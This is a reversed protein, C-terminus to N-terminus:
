RATRSDVNMSWPMAGPRRGAARDYPRIGGPSGDAVSPASGAPVRRALPIRQWGWVDFFGFRRERALDLKFYGASWQRLAPTILQVDLDLATRRVIAEGLPQKTRADVITVRGTRLPAVLAVSTQTGQYGVLILQPNGFLLRLSGTVRISWKTEVDGAVSLARAPLTADAGSEDASLREPVEAFRRLFHARLPLQSTYSGVANRKAALLPSNAPPTGWGGPVSREGPGPHINYELIRRPMEEAGLRALALDVLVGTASHDPHRDCRSPVVLVTPRFARLASVIRDVPTSSGGVLCETVQQDPLHLSQVASPPIGLRGLAIRSEGIRRAGWHRRDAPGSPWRGECALQSWPNNDGDTVFLISAPFEDFAAGALLEGAALTEDDPHPAIVMLRDHATLTTGSTRVSDVGSAPLFPFPSFGREVAPAWIAVVVREGAAAVYSHSGVSLELPGAYPRGDLTGRAPGDASVLSYRQPVAIQFPRPASEAPAPLVAGAVRWGGVAVYNKRMFRRARAPYDGSDWYVVAIRSSVLREPIRDPLLGKEMRALTVAECVYYYPRDRFIAEGRPDLVSDAPTTLRLLERLIVQQPQTRDATLPEAQWLAATELAFALAAVAWAAQGARTPSLAWRRALAETGALLAPVLLATVMPVLPLWDQRTVLPWTTEVALWYIAATLFLVVRRGGSALSPAEDLVKAAGRVLLVFAPLFLLPFWPHAQWTGLGPVVNHTFVAYLMEPLAGRASFYAFLIGPVTVAGAVFWAALVALRPGPRWGRRLALALTTVSAILAATSLLSTKMSVAFTAGLLLGSGLARRVTLRGGLAAALFLTWCMTWLVDSRYEVGRLVLDPEVGALVVAWLAARPGFLRSVLRWLAWLTVLVMPVMLWRMVIVIDARPGALALFPACLASFLPSHNDFIDRYILLGRVWGWAVHLHQPEDQNVQHRLTYLCRVATGLVILLIAVSRGATASASAAASAEATWAAEAGGGSGRWDGGRSDVGALSAEARSRTHEVSRGARPSGAVTVGGAIGSSAAPGPVRSPGRATGAGGSSPLRGPLTRDDEDHGARAISHRGASASERAFRKLWGTVSMESPRSGEDDNVAFATLTRPVVVDELVKAFRRRHLM